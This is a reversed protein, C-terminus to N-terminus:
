VETRRSVAESTAPIVPVYRWLWAQQNLHFRVKKKKKKGLGAKIRRIGVDLAPNCAHAMM